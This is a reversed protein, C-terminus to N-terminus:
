RVNKACARVLTERVGIRSCRERDVLTDLKLDIKGMSIGSEAGELVAM